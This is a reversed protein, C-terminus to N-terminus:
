HAAPSPINVPTTAAAVAPAVSVVPSAAAATASVPSSVDRPPTNRQVAAATNRLINSLTSWALGSVVEVTSSASNAMKGLSMVDQLRRDLFAWTDACGASRDTLMFLETSAYVTAALARKSYWNLDTSRDGAYYWVDDVMLAINRLTTPLHQPLAGLAMAQHWSAAFPRQRGM